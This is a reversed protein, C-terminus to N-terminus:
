SVPVYSTGTNHFRAQIGDVVILLDPRHPDGPFSLTVPALDAGTGFLHPGVLLQSGHASGGPIEVIYIQGSFNMAVFHSPVSGTEHGVFQDVQTTRPRGYRLDDMTTTGWNWLFQGIWLVLLTLVMGAVLYVLWREARTSRTSSTPKRQPATVFTPVELGHTAPQPKSQSARPTHVVIGDQTAREPQIPRHRLASRPAKQILPDGQALTATSM